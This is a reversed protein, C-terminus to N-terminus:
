PQQSIEQLKLFSGVKLLVGTATATDEAFKLGFTGSSSCTLTGMVHVATILTGTSPTYSNSVTTSVSALPTTTTDCIYTFVLNPNTVTGTGASFDLTIGGLDTPTVFLLAEMLYISTAKLPTNDLSDKIQLSSSNVLTEGVVVTENTSTYAINPVARDILKSLAIRDGNNFSTLRAIDKRLTSHSSM